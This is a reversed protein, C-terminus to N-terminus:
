VQSWLHNESEAKGKVESDQTIKYNSLTFDGFAHSTDM